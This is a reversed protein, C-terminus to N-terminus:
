LSKFILRVRIRKLRSWNGNIQEMLLADSCRYYSKLIQLAIGGRVDFWPKCGKGSIARRPKPIQKSLHFPKIFNELRHITFLKYSFVPPKNLYYFPICKHLSQYAGNQANKM